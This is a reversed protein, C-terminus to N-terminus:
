ESVKNVEARICQLDDWTPLEQRPVGMSSVAGHMGTKALGDNALQQILGVYPEEPTGHIDQYTGQYTDRQYPQPNDIEWAAIEDEDVLLAGDEIWTTFKRLQEAPNYESIGTDYRYDWNHVGCILNSGDIYGDALLAGRHQCRGFLVSVQDDYRIIVLDVGAVLAYLPQRDALADWNTIKIKNM